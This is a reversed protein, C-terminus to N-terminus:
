FDSKKEKIHVSRKVKTVVKKRECLGHKVFDFLLALGIKEHRVIRGFAHKVVHFLEILESDGRNVVIKDCRRLSRRIVEHLVM